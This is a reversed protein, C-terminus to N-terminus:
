DCHPHFYGRTRAARRVTAKIMCTVHRGPMMSGKTKMNVESVDLM